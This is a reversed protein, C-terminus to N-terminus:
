ELDEYRCSYLIMPQSMKKKNKINQDLWNMTNNHAIGPYRPYGFNLNTIWSIRAETMARALWIARTLILHPTFFSQCEYIIWPNDM